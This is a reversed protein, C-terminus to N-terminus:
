IININTKVYDVIYNDDDKWNLYDQGTLTLINSNIINRNEDFLVVRVKVSKFLILEIISIEIKSIINVKTKTIPEIDYLTSNM